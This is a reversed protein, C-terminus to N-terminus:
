FHKHYVIQWYRSCGPHPRTRAFAATFLATAAAFGARAGAGFPGRLQLTFGKTSYGTGSIGGNGPCFTDASHAYRFHSAPKKVGTADSAPTNM